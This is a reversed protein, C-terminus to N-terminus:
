ILLRVQEHGAKRKFGGPGAALSQATKDSDLGEDRNRGIRMSAM